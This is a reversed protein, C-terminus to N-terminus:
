VLILYVFGGSITNKFGMSHFPLYTHMSMCVHRSKCRHVRVYISMRPKNNERFM